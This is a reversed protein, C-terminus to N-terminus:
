FRAPNAVRATYLLEIVCLQTGLQLFAIFQRRLRHLSVAFGLAIGSSCFLAFFFGGLCLLLAHQPLVLLSAHGCQLSGTLVGANGFVVVYLGIWVLAFALENREFLKKM